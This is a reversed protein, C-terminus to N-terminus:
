EVTVSKALNRPKDISRGLIKAMHYIFFQVLATMALPGLLPNVKPIIFYDEALAILEDQGKFAFAVIRGGRAKVEQANSVLKKYILSDMHSFIFVPTHIDILAIPGHKLEGAPYAHVFLYSIEKLKLAAELAFPYSIHRGLFIFRHFVSYKLALGTEIQGKYTNLVEEMVTSAFLLDDESKKMDGESIQGRQFAFKNALWFLSAIQCSFAKTSAVAVEPGAHMLLYGDSQRVLTSNDVNTLVATKLNFSKVMKLAEITDATEGSQSIAFYLSQNNSFFKSYRFESALPVAVPLDCIYEFFFRAIRGAHWSTGCAIFVIKKLDKLDEIDLNLIKLFNDGLSKYYEVSQAISDRQEYIEKLMFSEHNLKTAQVWLDNLLRKRELSLVQGKFDYIEIKSKTIFAFSNDPLFIVEKCKGAFALPDSAVFNEEQGVGICLPSSNKALILGDFNKKLIVLAYAGELQELVKVFIDKLNKNRDSQLMEELLHAIVETDTQSCFFHGKKLLMEKIQYFNEIIGNHVIAIEQKCDFHPHANEKTSFGHTSWRTHGISVHVNKFKGSLEKSLNELKGVAKCYGLNGGDLCAFGASDYGRYELRSLSDLVQDKASGSGIYGAVSCM